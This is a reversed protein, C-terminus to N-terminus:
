SERWDNSGAIYNPNLKQEKRAEIILYGNECRANQSQYWQDENNRVFGKEYTWNAPNPAGNTNFEDSWVLQYNSSDQAKALSALLIIGTILLFVHRITKM